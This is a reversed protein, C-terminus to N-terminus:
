LEVDKHLPLSVIFRSGKGEVSEVEIKGNHLQILQKTLYLGLGAGTQNYLLVNGTRYFKQFLKPIESAPIGMGTDQVTVELVNSKTMAMVSVEGSQTYKVANDILNVFVARIKEVDVLVLPLPIGQSEYSLGIGKDKAFPRLQECVEQLLSAVQTEQLMLTGEKNQDADIISIQLLEEIVRSLEQTGGKIRELYLKREDAPLSSDELLMELYGQISAVPTRLNHSALSIFDHKNREIDMLASFYAERKYLTWWLYACLVSDLVFSGVILLLLAFVVNTTFSTLYLVCFAIKFGLSLSFGITLLVLRWRNSLATM